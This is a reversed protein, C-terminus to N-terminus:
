GSRTCRPRRSPRSPSIGTPFLPDHATTLVQMCRSRDGRPVPLRAVVPDSLRGTCIRRGRLIPTGIAHCSPQRGDGGDGCQHRAPHRLARPTFGVLIREPRVQHPIYDAYASESASWPCGLCDSAIRPLGLCDSAIHPLTLCHSAIHPLTLCDRLARTALHPELEPASRILSAIRLCDSAFSWTLNSSPHLGPQGLYARTSCLAHRRSANWTTARPDLTLSSSCTGSSLTIVSGSLSSSSICDSTM